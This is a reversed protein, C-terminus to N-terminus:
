KLERATLTFRKPFMWIKFSYIVKAMWKIHHNASPAKFRIKQSSAGGLFLFALELFERCDNRLQNETTLLKSNIFYIM